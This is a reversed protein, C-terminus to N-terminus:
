LYFRIHLYDLIRPDELNQHPIQRSRELKQEDINGRDDYWIRARMNSGCGITDQYMMKNGGPICNQSIKVYEYKM